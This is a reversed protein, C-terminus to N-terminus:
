FITIHSNPLIEAIKSNKQTKKPQRKRQKTNGWSDTM